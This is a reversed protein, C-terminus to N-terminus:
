DRISKILNKEKNNMDDFFEEKLNEENLIDQNQTNRERLMNFKIENLTYDRKGFYIQKLFVDYIFGKDFQLTMDIASPMPQNFSIDSLSPVIIHLIKNKEQECSYKHHHGHCIISAKSEVLKGNKTIHFLQIQDNKINILSNNYSTIIIDHRYNKLISIIDQGGKKLGDQDHNGGVGFTLINKDFPYDKIFHDIQKYINSIYQQVRTITGDIMDGCLFIIHINNKICYNFARDVLDKREFENGFHLDSFLLVKLELENPSTIITSENSTFLNKLETISTLPKYIISGNSYYKRKYNLGKNQLITLNNYLQKNSINLIHCIENCTKGENILEILKLTQESMM